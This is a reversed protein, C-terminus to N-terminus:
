MREPLKEKFHDIIQETKAQYFTPFDDRVDGTEKLTKWYVFLIDHIRKSQSKGESPANEKPIDADQIENEAVCLWAEKQMFTDIDRICDSDVEINTKFKLTVCHDKTRTYGSLSAPLTLVRKEKGEGLNDM